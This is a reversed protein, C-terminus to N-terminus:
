SRSFFSWATTYIRSATSKDAWDENEKLSDMKAQIYSSSAHFAVRAGAEQRAMPVRVKAGMKEKLDQIESDHLFEEMETKTLGRVLDINEKLHGVGARQIVKLPLNAVSADLTASVTASAGDITLQTLRHKFTGQMESVFFQGKDDTANWQKEFQNYNELAQRKTVATDSVLHFFFQTGLATVPSLDLVVTLLNVLHHSVKHSLLKDTTTLKDSQIDGIKDAMFQAENLVEDRMARLADKRISVEMELENLKAHKEDRSLTKAHNIKHKYQDGKKELDSLMQDIVSIVQDAVKVCDNLFNKQDDVIMDKDGSEETNLTYDIIAVLLEELLGLAIVKWMPNRFLTEFATNAVRHEALDKSDSPKPNSAGVEPPDKAIRSGPPKNEDGLRPVERKQQKHKTHPITVKPPIVTLSTAKPYIVTLSTAKPYIVTLSTAKPYISTPSATKPPTITLATVQHQTKFDSLDPPLAPLQQESSLALSKEAVLEVRANDSYLQKKVRSGAQNIAIKLEYAATQATRSGALRALTGSLM